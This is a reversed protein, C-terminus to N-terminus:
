IIRSWLLLLLVIPIVSLRQIYASNTVKEEFDIQNRTLSHGNTHVQEVEGKEFQAAKSERKNRKKLNQSEDQSEEDDDDDEYEEENGEDIDDPKVSIEHKESEDAKLDDVNVKDTRHLNVLELKTTKSNIDPLKLESDKAIHASVPPPIEGKFPGFQPSKLLLETNAPLKSSFIKSTPKNVDPVSTLTAASVTKGDYTTFTQESSLKQSHEKPFKPDPPLYHPSVKDSEMVMDPVNKNMNKKSFLANLESETKVYVPHPRDEKAHNKPFVEKTRDNTPLLHDEPSPIFMPEFTETMKESPYAHNIVQPSEEYDEEVDTDERRNSNPNGEYEAIRDEVAMLPERIIPKFGSEVVISDPKFGTNLAPLVSSSDSFEGIFDSSKIENQAHHHHSLKIRHTTSHFYHPPPTPPTRITQPKTQIMQQDLPMPHEMPKGLIIQGTQYTQPSSHQAIADISGPLTIQSKVVQNAIIDTQGLSLMQSQTPLPIQTNINVPKGLVISQMPGNPKPPQRHQIQNFLPKPYLSPMSKMPPVNGSIPRNMNPPLRNSPYKQPKKQMAHPGHGNPMPLPYGNVKQFMPQPPRRMKIEPPAPRRFPPRMHQGNQKPGNPRLVSQLTLPKQNPPLFYTEPVKGTEVIYEEDERIPQEPVFMEKVEEHVQYQNLPKLSVNNRADNNMKSEINEVAQIVEEIQVQSIPLEFEQEKAYLQNRDEQEFVEGTLGSTSSFNDYNHKTNIIKELKKRQDLSNDPALRSHVQVSEEGGLDEPLPPLVVSEIVRSEEGEAEDCEDLVNIKWGLHRHTFCQFM